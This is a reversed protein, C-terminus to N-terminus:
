DYKNLMVPMLLFKDNFLGARNPATMKLSVFPTDVKSLIQLMLRANFGMANFIEPKQLPVKVEENEGKENILYKTAFREIHFTELKVNMRRNMAHSYDLDEAVVRIHGDYVAGGDKRFELKMQHTTRNAAAEALKTTKIFENKNVIMEFYNQEGLNPYVSKLDPYREDMPLEYITFGKGQFCTVPKGYLPSNTLRSETQDTFWVSLKIAEKRASIFKSVVQSILLNEYYRIEEKCNKLMEKIEQETAMANWSVSCGDPDVYRVWQPITPWTDLFPEMYAKHGDTAMIMDSIAVQMMAPRLEDNGLYDLAVKIKSMHENDLSGLDVTHIVQDHKVIVPVEKIQDEASPFKFEIKGNVKGFVITKDENSVFTMEDDPSLASVIRKLLDYDIVGSVDHDMDFSIVRMIGYISIKGPEFVLDSLIPLSKDRFPNLDGIIKKLDKAKM